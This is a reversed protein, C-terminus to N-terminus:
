SAFEMQNLLALCVSKVPLNLACKAINLVLTVCIKNFSIAVCANLANYNPLVSEVRGLASLARVM